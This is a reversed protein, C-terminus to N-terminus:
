PAKVQVWAFGLAGTHRVITLSRSGGEQLVERLRGYESSSLTLPSSLSHGVEDFSLRYETRSRRLSVVHLRANEVEISQGPGRDLSLNIARTVLFGSLPFGTLGLALCIGLVSRRRPSEGLSFSAWILFAAFALGSWWLSWVVLGDPDLLRDSFLLGVMASGIVGVLWFSAAIWKPFSAARRDSEFDDLAPDLALVAIMFGFAGVVLLLFNSM